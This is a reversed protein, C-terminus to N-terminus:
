LRRRENLQITAKNRAFYKSFHLGFVWPPADALITGRSAIEDTSYAFDTLLIMTENAIVATSNVAGAPRAERDHMRDLAGTSCAQLGRQQALLAHQAVELSCLDVLAGASSLRNSSCLLRSMRRTAQLLEASGPLQWGLVAAKWHM